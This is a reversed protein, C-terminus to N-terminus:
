SAPLQETELQPRIYLPIFVGAPEIDVITNGRWRQTYERAQITEKVTAERLPYTVTLQRGPKLNEFIVYNGDFATPIPKQDVWAKVQAHDAWQPVRVLIRRAEGAFVNLEGRYPLSSVVRALPSERNFALNVRAERADGTVTANWVGHAARITADSCCGQMHIGPLAGDLDSPLNNAWDGFGCAGLQQGTMRRAADLSEAFRREIEASVTTPDSNPNARRVHDAIFRRAQQEYLPTVRFIQDAVQGTYFQEAIDYFRELDALSPDLRSADGLWVANEVVDGMTCGECDAKRPWGTAVMLWEGIWGTMSGADPNRATDYLWDLSAASQRIFRLGQERRGARLLQEGTPVLLRIGHTHGHMHWSASSKQETGGFSGDPRLAGDNGAPDFSNLFRNGLAYAMDLASEDGTLRYWETFAGMNWSTGLHQWGGLTPDPDPSWPGDLPIMSQPYMAVPGLNPDTSLATHDRFFTLMRGAWDKLTPNGTASYLLMLNRALEGHGIPTARVPSQPDYPMGTKPDSIFMLYGLQGNEAPDNQKEAGFMAHLMAHAGLNRNNNDFGDVGHHRLVAWPFARNDFHYRLAPSGDPLMGYATPQHTMYGQWAERATAIPDFPHHTNSSFLPAAAIQRTVTIQRQTLTPTTATQPAPTPIPDAPQAAARAIGLSFILVSFLAAMRLPRPNLRPSVPQSIPQSM